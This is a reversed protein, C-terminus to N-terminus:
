IKGREKSIIHAARLFGLLYLGKEYENRPKWKVRRALREFCLRQLEIGIDSVEEDELTKITINLINWTKLLNIHSSKLLTGAKIITQRFNNIIPEAVIMGDEIEYINIRKSM